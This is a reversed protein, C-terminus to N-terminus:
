AETTPPRVSSCCSSTRSRDAARGCKVIPSIRVAVSSDYRIIWCASTSRAATWSPADTVLRRRHRGDPRPCVHVDRDRDGRLSPSAPAWSVLVMSLVAVDDGIGVGAVRAHVAAPIRPRHGRDVADELGRGEAQLRRVEAAAVLCPSSADPVRRLAVQCLREGLAPCVMGVLRRAHDQDVRHDRALRDHRAELALRAAPGLDDHRRLRRGYRPDRWLRRRAFQRASQLIGARLARAGMYWLQRRPARPARKGAHAAATATRYLRPPAGRHVPPSRRTKMAGGRRDVSRAAGPQCAVATMSGPFPRGCAAVLVRRTRM